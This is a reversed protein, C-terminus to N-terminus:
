AAKVADRPLEIEAWGPMGDHENGADDTARIQFCPTIMPCYEGHAWPHGYLQISALEDQASISEIV